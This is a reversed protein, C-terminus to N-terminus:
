VLYAIYGTNRGYAGYINQHLPSASNFTANLSSLLFAAASILFYKFPIFNQKGAFFIYILFISFGFGGAVVLKTANVPDTVSDLVIFLCTLPAGILIFNGAAKEAAKNFM